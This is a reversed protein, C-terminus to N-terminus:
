RFFAEDVATATRLAEFDPISRRHTSALTKLRAYIGRAVMENGAQCSQRIAFALFVAYTQLENPTERVTEEFFAVTPEILSLNPAVAYRGAALDGTFRGESISTVLNQQVMRRCAQREFGEALPLGSWAWYIAHSQALRWDLAGFRREIERMRDLDMRFSERLEVAASSGAPPLGGHADVVASMAQALALKYLTHAPDGNYGIKNQYMWGLERYLRAERPNVPLARDRLLSVGEAVWTLRDEYSPMMASINYALNWANYIWADTAHPDLATIWEALQVQEFYRGQEQMRGARLWLVEAIVGRFGGLGVMVYQVWPPQGAAYARAEKLGEHRSARLRPELKLALVAGALLLAWPLLVSLKQHGQERM